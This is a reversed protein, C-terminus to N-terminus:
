EESPYLTINGNPEIVIQVEDGIKQLPCVKEGKEDLALWIESGSKVKEEQVMIKLFLMLSEVTFVQKVVKGM